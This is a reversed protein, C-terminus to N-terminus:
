RKRRKQRERPRTLGYVLAARDANRLSEHITQKADLTKGIYDHVTGGVRYYTVVRTCGPKFIRDRAQEEDAFSFGQSIFMAHTAEAFSIGTGGSQTQVIAICSKGTDKAFADIILKREQVPTSGDIRFVPTTKYEKALREVLRDAEHRFRHFIVVKEDSHIIEDLDDIVADEVATHINHYGSDEDETTRPLFGCALQQLRMLRTLVNPAALDVPAELVWENALKDYLDWAHSPMEVTRDVRQWSDPGFVDERRIISAHALLLKQLEETNKHGIIRSPFFRDFILYKDGYDTWTGFAKPDLPALQGWLDGYHNPSPTGTLERVWTANLALRRFARGRATSRGAFRHAEDGVIANPNWRMLQEVVFRLKDDNLVIVVNSPKLKLAAKLKEITLEYGRIVTLGVTELWQAWDPCPTLPATVIARLEQLTPAFLRLEAIAAFTKGIRPSAHYAWKKVNQNQLVERIQWDYPPPFERPWATDVIQDLLNM